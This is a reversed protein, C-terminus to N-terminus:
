EPYLSVQVPVIEKDFFGAKASAQSREYSAKAFADQAERSIKYKAATEEACIGMHFHSYADILGDNVIGDILMTGGYTPDSRPLYFPGNSMSEM